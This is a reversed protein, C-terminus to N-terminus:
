EDKEREMKYGVGWVTSIKVRKTEKEIKDRLRAIHVRITHFDGREYGWITELIGNYTLVQEVHTLFFKMLDFEKSTLSIQKDNITLLRTLLNLEITEFKIISENKEKSKEFSAKRMRRQIAKIRAIIEGPTADKVIYDDAGINLGRIKDTDDQLATLFVLPIDYKERIQKCLTFGSEGPMMIDLLIFHINNHVLIQKAEAGKTAKYVVYGEVTLFDELLDAIEEEDDVILINKYM